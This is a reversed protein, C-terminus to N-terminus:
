FSFGGGTDNGVGVDGNNGGGWQGLRQQHYDRAKMWGVPGLRYAIYDDMGPDGNNVHNYLESDPIHGFNTQYNDYNAPKAMGNGAAGATGPANPNGDLLQIPRQAPQAAGNVPVNTNSAGYGQGPPNSWAGMGVINALWPPLSNMGMGGSVSTSANQNVPQAPMFGPMTGTTSGLTPARSVNGSPQSSFMNALWSPLGNMSMGGAPTVPGAKSRPNAMTFATSGVAKQSASVTPPVAAASSAPSIGGPTDTGSM